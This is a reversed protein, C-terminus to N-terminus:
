KGAGKLGTKKGSAADGPDPKVKPPPSAYPDAGGKAGVGLAGDSDILTLAEVALNLKAAVDAVRRRQEKEQERRYIEFLWAASYSANGRVGDANEIGFRKKAIEKIAPLTLAKLADLYKDRGKGADPSDLGLLATLRELDQASFCALLPSLDAESM